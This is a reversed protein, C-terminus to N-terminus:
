RTLPNGQPEGTSGSRRFPHGIVLPVSTILGILFPFVYDDPHQVSIAIELTYAICPVLVAIWGILTRYRIQIVCVAFLAAYPWVTVVTGDEAFGWLGFFVSVLAPAIYGIWPANHRKCFLGTVIQSTNM